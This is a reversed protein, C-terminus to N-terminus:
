AEGMTEFLAFRMAEDATGYGCAVFHFADFYRDCAEIAADYIAQCQAPNPVAGGTFMMGKRFLLVSGERWYDFHGIWLQTNIQALLQVIEAARNRPIDLDVACALHLTELDEMWSFSIECNCSMAAVAITIEDDGNREFIWDNRAAVQEVTDVPNISRVANYDIWSM